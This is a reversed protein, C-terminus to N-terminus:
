LEIGLYKALRQAEQKARYYEAIVYEVSEKDLALLTGAEFPHLFLRNKPMYPNFCIPIGTFNIWPVNIIWNGKRAPNDVHMKSPETPLLEKKGYCRAMRLLLNNIDEFSTPPTSITGNHATAGDVVLEDDPMLFTTYEIEKSMASDQTATTEFYAVTDM